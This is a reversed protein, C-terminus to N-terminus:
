QMIASLLEESMKETWLCLEIIQEESLRAKKHMLTYAKIPMNHAEVEKCMEDLIGIKDLLDMQGWESLNLEKKGEVMHNNIMWSVPSIKHYWLYRTQNSHCDLCANQLINRIEGPLEAQIFLHNSDPPTDNKEPVFFQIAIFAVILILFIIKLFKKM